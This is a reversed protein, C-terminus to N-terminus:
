AASGPGPPPGNRRRISGAVSRARERIRHLWSRAWAFEVALIGLGALVGAIGPGPMVLMIVGLALVTGGVIGIAIRKAIIVAAPM